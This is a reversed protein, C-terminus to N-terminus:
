SKVGLRRLLDAHRRQFDDYKRRAASYGEQSSEALERLKGLKAGTKEKEVEHHLDKITRNQSDIIFYAVATFATAVVWWYRAAMDKIKEIM